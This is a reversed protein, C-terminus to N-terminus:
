APIQVPFAPHAEAQQLVSTCTNLLHGFRRLWKWKRPICRSNQMGHKWSGFFWLLGVAFLLLCQPSIRDTSPLSHEQAGAWHAPMLSKSISFTMAVTVQLLALPKCLATCSCKRWLCEQLWPALLSTVTKTAAHTVMMSDHSVELEPYTPLFSVETSLNSYESARCLCFFTQKTM